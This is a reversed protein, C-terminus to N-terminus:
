LYSYATKGFYLVFVSKTNNETIRDFSNLYDIKVNQYVKYVNQSKWIWMFCGLSFTVATM